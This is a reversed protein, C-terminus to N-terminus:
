HILKRIEPESFKGSHQLASFTVGPISNVDEDAVGLQMQQKIYPLLENLSGTKDDKFNLIEALTVSGDGNADLRKFADQAADGNQLGQTVEDTSNPIRSRLSSIIGPIRSNIGAFMQRQGEEAQPNSKWVIATDTQDLSCDEAGTVGAKAPIGHVVFGIQSLEISYHFGCKAPKLGLSEFSVTFSRHQKFHNREADRIQQIYSAACSKNNAMRVKQVAPLVMGILIAIIAIVVLLEILTFGRQNLPEDQM